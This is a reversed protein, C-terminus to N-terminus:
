KQLNDKTGEDMGDVFAEHLDARQWASHHTCAPQLARDM